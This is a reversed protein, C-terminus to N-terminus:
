NLIWVKRGDPSQSLFTMEKSKDIGSMNTEERDRYM